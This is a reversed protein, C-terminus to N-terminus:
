VYCKSLRTDVKERTFTDTACGSKELTIFVRLYEWAAYKKEESKAQIRGTSHSIGRSHM